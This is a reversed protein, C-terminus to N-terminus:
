RCDKFFMGLDDSTKKMDNSLLGEIFESHTGPEGDFQSFATYNGNGLMDWAFIYGASPEDIQPSDTAYALLASNEDCIYQMDEEKGYGAVNYTSEFVSVQEIGFLASLVDETVVAPNVTSGTYKIRELVNPNNKLAEFAGAGLGLRNPKKRGKKKFETKRADMFAIPDFNADDWKLMTNNASDAGTTVGTWENAWVGPKFFNKAFEIDLHLDMQEQAFRVKARKPDAVGPANTRAYNIAGIQDIGVIIQDVKCSYTDETQGMIAPAVKGFQPKRGVNDRALDAKSFIYYNASSLSVPCIPFIKRAVFDNPDSFFAMSMNTLYQNPKWGKAIAALIAGNTNKNSM